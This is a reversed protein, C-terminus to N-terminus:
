RMFCTHAAFGTVTGARIVLAASALGADAIRAPERSGGQIVQAALAVTQRGRGAGSEIPTIGPIDPELRGIEAPAGTKALAPILEGTQGAVRRVFGQTAVIRLEVVPDTSAAVGISM